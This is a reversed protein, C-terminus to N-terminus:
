QTFQLAASTEVVGRRVPTGVCRTAAEQMHRQAEVPDSVISAMQAVNVNVGRLSQQSSRGSGKGQDAAPAIVVRAGTAGSHDLAGVHAASAPLVAAAAHLAGPASPIAGAGAASSPLGPAGSAPVLVRAGRGLAAGGVAAAIETAVQHRVAAGHGRSTGGSDRLLSEADSTDM